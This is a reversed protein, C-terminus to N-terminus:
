QRKKKDGALLRDLLPVAEEYTAANKHRRKNPKGGKDLKKNQKQYQIELAHKKATQHPHDERLFPAWTM